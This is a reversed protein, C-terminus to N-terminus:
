LLQEEMGKIPKALHEKTPTKDGVVNRLLEGIAGLNSGVIGGSATSATSAAAKDKKEKQAATSADREKDLDKLVFKGKNTKRGWTEEKIEEM